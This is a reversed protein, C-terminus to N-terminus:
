FRANHTYAYTPAGFPCGRIRVHVCTIRAHVYTACTSGRRPTWTHTCAHVDCTPGAWEGKPPITRVTSRERLKEKNTPGKPGSIRRLLLCVCPVHLHLYTGTLHTSSAHSHHAGNSRAQTFSTHVIRPYCEPMEYTSVYM